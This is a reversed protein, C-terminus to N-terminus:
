RFAQATALDMGSSVGAVLAVQGTFDYRPNMLQAVEVTQGGDVVIARGIVFDARSRTLEHLRLMTM